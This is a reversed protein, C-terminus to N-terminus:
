FLDVDSSNRYYDLLEAVNKPVDVSKKPEDLVSLDNELKGIWATRSMKAFTQIM